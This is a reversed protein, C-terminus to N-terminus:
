IFLYIHGKVLFIFTFFIHMNLFFSRYLFAFICFLKRLQITIFSWGVANETLFCAKYLLHCEEEMKLYNAATCGNSSRCIGACAIASPTNVFRDPTFNARTNKHAVFRSSIVREMTYVYEFHLILVAKVLGTIKIYM